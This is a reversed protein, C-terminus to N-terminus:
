AGGEKTKINIVDDWTIKLTPGVQISFVSYEMGMISASAARASASDAFFQFRLHKSSQVFVFRNVILTDLVLYMNNLLAWFIGSLLFKLNHIPGVTSSLHLVTHSNPSEWIWIGIFSIYLYKRSICFMHEHFFKAHVNFFEIHYYFICTLTSEVRGEKILTENM